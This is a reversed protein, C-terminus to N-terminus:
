EIAVHPLPKITAWQKCSPCQWHHARAGFGCGQCRYGPSRVILQENIQQLTALLGRPEESESRLALDILAAEGRISPRQRLHERLFGLAATAGEEAEIRRALALAPSVGAYREVMELLFGRARAPDDTRDYAALLPPLAEPLFEIDQRAAREYARIAGADNGDALEIQGELLSARVSNTDASSARGLHERALGLDGKIRAREALECEFQAILRGMPEGTAAEYRRAHDIAQQWDREAQYISMLHRLAQPAAAGMKVLDAFLTEARDLLGARMYDEGLALIARTKQEDSLGPRSIVSQHLRIARDVEGRRRFLTGLTFQTELTEKDREAIQLFVEIAKDQQENLLYNLGRFYTASLRSVRAGGRREGGRRGLFWGAAGVAPVLVLLWWPSM